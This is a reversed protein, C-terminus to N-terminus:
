AAEVKGAWRPMGAAMLSEYDLSVTPGVAGKTNEGRTIYQPSDMLATLFSQETPYLPPQQVWRRAALYKIYCIRWMLVLRIQGGYDKIEYDIGAQLKLQDVNFSTLESMSSLCKIYEPVASRSLTDSSSYVSNIMENWREGLEAAFVDQGVIAELLSRLKILGFKAVTNNFISRFRNNAKREYESKLMLGDRHRQVDEATLLHEARADTFLEEFQKEFREVSGAGLAHMILARGLSPIIDEYEQFQLFQSYHYAALQPSQRKIPALVVREAIATQDEMAESIFVIPATLKVRNLANFSSNKANGGGRVTEKQNYVMRFIGRIQKLTNADMEAPKYEDFFVPISTSAGLLRVLGFGSSSPSMEAIDSRYYHFRCMSTILETKGSGAAGYVHLLPFKGHFRIFFQKWVCAVFWGIVPGIVEPPHSNILHKMGKLCRQKGEDDKFIEKLLPARMIDTKIDGSEDPYGRFVFANKVVESSEKAHKIDYTDVWMLNEQTLDSYEGDASPVSVFALGESGLGFKATGALRQQIMQLVGRAQADSGTFVGGRTSIANQFGSSSTFQNPHLVFSRKTTASSEPTFCVRIGLLEGTEFDVLSEPAGKGELVFTFNSIPLSDEGKSTFYRGVRESINADAGEVTTSNEEIAQETAISKLGGLSYEYSPNDEVYHFTELLARERKGVTNYRNGDSKHSNVLGECASLFKAEDWGSERAYLAVQVAIQNFGMDPRCAGSMVAEALKGHLKLTEASVPKPKKKPKGEFKQLAEEYVLAFRPCYEPKQFAVAPRPTKCLEYYKDTNLELLEQYTIPVRYNGNERINYCTRLMRGKKATYVRIDTNPRVFKFAIEKYVAPLNVVPVPKQVMVQQPILVHMGKKGSLYIELCNPNVGYGVIEEVTEKADQISAAVDQENDFDFYMPGSYKINAILDKDANDTILKDTALVTVFTPKIEELSKLEEVQLPVWKETGGIKQYYVYM